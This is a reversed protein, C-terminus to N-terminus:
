TGNTPRPASSRGQQREHEHAVVHIELLDADTPSTGSMSTARDLEAGLAAVLAFANTTTPRMM